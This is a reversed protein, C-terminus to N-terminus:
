PVHIFSAHVLVTPLLILHPPPAPCPLTIPPCPSSQLQVVIFFHLTIQFLKFKIPLSIGELYVIYRRIDIGKSMRNWDSADKTTVYNKCM